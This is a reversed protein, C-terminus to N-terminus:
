QPSTALNLGTKTWCAGIVDEFSAFNMPFLGDLELVTWSLQVCNQERGMELPRSPFQSPSQPLSNFM